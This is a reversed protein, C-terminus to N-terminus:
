NKFKKKCAARRLKGTLKRLRSRQSFNETDVPDPSSSPGAAPQEDLDLIQGPVGASDRMPPLNQDLTGATEVSKLDSM